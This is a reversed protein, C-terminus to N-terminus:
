LRKLFAWLYGDLFMMYGIWIAVISLATVLNRVGIEATIELKEKGYYYEDYWGRIAIILVSLGIAIMLGM